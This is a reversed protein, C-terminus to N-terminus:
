RAMRVNHTVEEAAVNRRQGADQEDFAARAM